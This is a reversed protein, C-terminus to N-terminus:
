RPNASTPNASVFNDAQISMPLTAAAAAPFRSRRASRDSHELVLVQAANAPKLQVFLGAAGGGIVVVDQASGAV